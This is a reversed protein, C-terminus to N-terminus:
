FLSRLHDIPWASRFILGFIRKLIECRMLKKDSMGLWWGLKTYGLKLMVIELDEISLGHLRKLHSKLNGKVNGKYRCLHCSFPKEGTHIRMHKVLHNPRPFSKGCLQCQFRNATGALLFAPFCQVFAILRPKLHLYLKESIFWSHSWGMPRCHFFKLWM